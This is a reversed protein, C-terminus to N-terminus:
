QGAFDVGEVRDDNGVFVYVALPARDVSSDGRRYLLVLKTVPRDPVPMFGQKRWPYDMGKQKAEAASVRFAPQGLRSIVESEPKGILGRYLATNELVPAVLFNWTLFAPLGVFCLLLGTVWLWRKSKM